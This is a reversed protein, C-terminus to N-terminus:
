PPTSHSYPTLSPNQERGNRYFPACTKQPNWNEVKQYYGDNPIKEPPFGNALLVSRLEEAREERLKYSEQEKYEFYKM